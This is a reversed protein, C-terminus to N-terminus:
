AILLDTIHRLNRLHENKEDWEETLHNMMEKHVDDDFNTEERIELSLSELDSELEKIFFDITERPTYAM